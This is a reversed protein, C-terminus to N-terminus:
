GVRRPPLRVPARKQSSPRQPADPAAAGALADSIRASARQLAQAAKQVFVADARKERTVLSLSAVAQAGVFIPAAVGAVGPTVESSTFAYGQERILKLDDRLERWSSYLTDYGIAAKHKHFLTRLSRESLHALIVKSTAGRFLFMAAGRQYSTPAHPARGEEQHVCMVCDRYLRCLVATAEQTTRDLLRRMQPAAIGALPDSERILADFRIFAPGLRYLGDAESFLFAASSLVQVDRYISSSSVALDAAMEPITWAARREFLALIKLIRERPGAM